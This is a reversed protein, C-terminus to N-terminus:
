AGCLASKESRAAIDRKVRGTRMGRRHHSKQALVFAFPQQNCNRSKALADTEPRESIKPAVRADMEGASSFPAVNEGALCAREIRRRLDSLQQAAERHCHEGFLGRTPSSM